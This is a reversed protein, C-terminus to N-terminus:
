ITLCRFSSGRKRNVPSFAGLMFQLFIVIKIEKQFSKNPDKIEVFFESLDRSLGGSYVLSCLESVGERFVLLFRVVWNGPCPFDACLPCPYLLSPNSELTTNIALDFM